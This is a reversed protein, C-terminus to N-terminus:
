SGHRFRRVASDGPWSAGPLRSRDGRAVAPPAARTAGTPYKWLRSSSPPASDTEPSAARTTRTASRSSPETPERGGYGHGRPSALTVNPISWPRSRRPTTTPAPPAPRGRAPPTPAPLPATTPSHARGPGRRPRPRLIEPDGPSDRHVADDGGYVRVGPVPCLDPARPNSPRWPSTAASGSLSIIVSMSTDTPFTPSAATM